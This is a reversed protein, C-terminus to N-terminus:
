FGRRSSSPAARRRSSTNTKVLRIIISISILICFGWLMLKTHVSIREGLYAYVVTAPLQGIGTAIWFGLFRMRTLGAVYSVVDFSLIPILRAILVAYNGYKGLFQNTKDVAQQSILKAVHRAGIPATCHLLMRRCRADCQEVVLPYGVWVGFLAGNAFTIFFAPLPAIVSQFVMLLASVAPAFAGYSKIYERATEISQFAAFIELLFEWIQKPYVGLFILGILTVLLLVIRRKKYVASRLRGVVKSMKQM